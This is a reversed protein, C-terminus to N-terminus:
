IRQREESTQPRLASTLPINGFNIEPADIKIIGSEM